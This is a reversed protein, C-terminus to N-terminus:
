AFPTTKFPVMLRRKGRSVCLVPFSPATKGQTKSRGRNVGSAWSVRCRGMGVCARGGRWLSSFLWPLWVRRAGGWSVKGQVMVPTLHGEGGGGIFVRPPPASLFTPFFSLSFSPFGLSLSLTKSLSLFPALVSPFFPVLSFLLYQCPSRTLSLSLFLFFDSYFSPSSSSGGGVV